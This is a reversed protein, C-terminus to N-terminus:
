ACNIRRVLVWSDSFMYVSQLTGPSNYQVAGVILYEVGNSNLSEISQCWEKPLPM